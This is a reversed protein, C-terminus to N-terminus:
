REGRLGTKAGLELGGAAGGGYNDDNDYNDGNDIAGFFCRGLDRLWYHM